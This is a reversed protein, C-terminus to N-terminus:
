YKLRFIEIQKIIKKQFIENLPWLVVLKFHLFTKKESELSPYIVCLIIVTAKGMMSNQSVLLM